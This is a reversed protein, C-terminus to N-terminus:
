EKPFGRWIIDPPIIEGEVLGAGRLGEMTTQLAKVLSGDPALAAAQEPFTVLRM